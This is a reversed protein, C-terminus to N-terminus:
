KVVVGKIIMGVGLLTNAQKFQHTLKLKRFLVKSQNIVVSTDATPILITDYRSFVVKL